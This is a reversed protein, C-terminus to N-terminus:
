EKQRPMNDHSPAGLFAFHACWSAMSACGLVRDPVSLRSLYWGFGCTASRRHRDTHCHCSQGYARCGVMCFGHSGGLRPWHWLAWYRAALQPLAERLAQMLVVNHVGGGCVILTELPQQCQQLALVVSAVTLALLTAQVDAPAYANHGIKEQLWALSFYDRGTAKPGKKAFFPDAMCADHLAPIVQGSEAWQGADDYPQQRHAMCWADMLANGPGTDFGLLVDGLLTLNAISGINLIATQGQLFLM